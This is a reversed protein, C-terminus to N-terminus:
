SEIREIEEGTAPDYYIEVKKEDVKGYIEYCQGSSIKFKIVEGGQDEFGKVIEWAPTSQDAPTCTPGALVPTAFTVALATSMLKKM